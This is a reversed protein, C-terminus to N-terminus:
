DSISRERQILSALTQLLARPHEPKAAIVDAYTKPNGDLPMTTLLLIPVVPKMRKLEPGLGEDEDFPGDGLVVADVPNSRFREIADRPTSAPLVAYGANGLVASITLLTVPERDIVLVTHRM